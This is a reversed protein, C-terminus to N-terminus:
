TKVKMVSATAALSIIGVTLTNVALLMTNKGDKIYYFGIIYYSKQVLLTIHTQTHTKESNPSLNLPRNTFLAENINERASITRAIHHEHSAPHQLLLFWETINLPHTEIETCSNKAASQGLLLVPKQSFLLVCQQIM